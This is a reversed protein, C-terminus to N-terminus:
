SLKPMNNDCETSELRFIHAFLDWTMIPINDIILEYELGRLPWAFLVVVIM